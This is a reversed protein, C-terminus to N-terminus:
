WEKNEIAKSTNGEKIAKALEDLTKMALNYTKVFSKGMLNKKEGKPNFPYNNSIKMEKVTTCGPGCPATYKYNSITLLIRAKGEKVDIRLIHYADVIRNEFVDEYNLNLYIGKAIIIGNAKESMQIVANGNVYNYTFYANARNYIEEKSMSDKTTSDVLVVVRSFTINGNDDFSYKGEISKLLEEVKKTQGFLASTTLLVAIVALLIRKM